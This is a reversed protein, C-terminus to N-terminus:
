GGPWPNTSLHDVLDTITIDGDGNYDLYHNSSDPSLTTGYLALILLFDM